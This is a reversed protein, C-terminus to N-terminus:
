TQFYYMGKFTCLFQLFTDATEIILLWAPIVIDDFLLLSAIKICALIPQLNHNTVFEVLNPEKTCTVM